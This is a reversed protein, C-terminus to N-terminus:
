AAEAKRRSRIWFIIAVVTWVALGAVGLPITMLMLWGLVFMTNLMGGLDVGAVVCPHINGENLTCDTSGAILTAILVSIIPLSALLVIAVFAVAFLIVVRRRSGAAGTM